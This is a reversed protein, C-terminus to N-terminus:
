KDSHGSWVVTTKGWLSKRAIGLKQFPTKKLSALQPKNWAAAEILARQLGEGSLAALIQGVLAPNLGRGRFEPFVFFDFLHVDGQQLPFFHPEMARGKLTWGSAAIIGSERWLWLEAGAAFRETVLRRMAEPNWHSVLRELDTTALSVPSSKREVNKAAAAPSKVPLDCAFLVMQGRAAARKLGVTFRQVTARTGHVRHFERLRNISSLGSVVNETRKLLLAGERM